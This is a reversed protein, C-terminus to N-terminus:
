GASALGGSVEGAENTSHGIITKSGWAIRAQQYIKELREAGATQRNRRVSYPTLCPNQGSLKKEPVDVDDTVWRNVYRMLRRNAKLRPSLLEEAESDPMGATAIVIVGAWSLGWDILVAAAEDDLGATLRENELIGEAAREFRRQLEDM